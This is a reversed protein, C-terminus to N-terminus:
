KLGLQRLSIPFEFFKEMSFDDFITLITQIHVFRCRANNQSFESNLRM